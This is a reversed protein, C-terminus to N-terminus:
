GSVFWILMMRGIYAIRFFCAENDSLKGDANGTATDDFWNKYLNPTHVDPLCGLFSSYPLWNYGSVYLTM